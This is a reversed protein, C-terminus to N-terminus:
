HMVQYETESIEAALLTKGTESNVLMVTDEFAYYGLKYGNFFVYGSIHHNNDSINYGDVILLHTMGEKTYLEGGIVKFIFSIEGDIKYYRNIPLKNTINSEIDLKKANVASYFESLEVIDKTKSGIHGNEMIACLEDYTLDLLSTM